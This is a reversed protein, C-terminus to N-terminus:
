RGPDGVQGLKGVYVMKGLKPDNVTIGSENVEIQVQAPTAMRKTGQDRGKPKITIGKPTEEGFEIEFKHLVTVKSGARRATIWTWKGDVEKKFIMSDAEVSAGAKTMCDAKKQNDGGSKDACEKEAKEYVDSEKFSFSFLMGETTLIEKASRTPKAPEKASSEEDEKAGEKKESSESSEEEAAAPPAESAPESKPPTEAPEPPSGGCGALSCVIILSTLTKAIM